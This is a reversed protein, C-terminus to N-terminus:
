RARSGRAASLPAGGGGGGPASGPTPVASPGPMPKPAPGPAPGGGGSQGGGGGGGKSNGMDRYKEVINTTVGNGWSQAIEPVTWMVIVSVVALLACTIVATFIGGQPDAAVMTNMVGQYFKMMLGFVMAMLVTVLGYNIVSAIWKGFLDKLSQFCLLFIFVPGFCVVIALMLKAMIIFGAGLGCLITTSLLVTVGLVFFAIGEGTMVGANKFAKEAITLGDDIAKDITSGISSQQTGKSGNILLVGAFEDPTKLAVNALTSQYMGGASAISIIIGWKAFRSFLENLPEGDPKALSFVGEIILSITLGLGIVPTVASIINSLNDAVFQQAVTDMYKFIDSTFTYGAM